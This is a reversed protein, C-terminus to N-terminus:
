LTWHLEGTIPNLRAIKWGYLVLIDDTGALDLLTARAIRELRVPDKPKRPNVLRTSGWGTLLIGGDTWGTDFIENMRGGQHDGTWIVSGDGASLVGVAHGKGLSVGIMNGDPSWTVDSLYTKSEFYRDIGKVHTSLQIDGSQANLLWLWPFDRHGSWKLGQDASVEGTGGVAITMGDPDFAITDMAGQLEMTRMGHAKLEGEEDLPWGVLVEGARVACIRNRNADVDVDSVVPGTWVLEGTQKWLQVKGTPTAHFFPQAWTVLFRGDHTWKFTSAGWGEMPALDLVVELESRRQKVADDAGDLGAKLPWIHLDGGSIFALHEGNPNVRTFGMQVDKDAFMALIKGSNPDVLQASAEIAPCERAPRCSVLLEGTPLQVAYTSEVLRKPPSEPSADAPSEQSSGALLAFCLLANPILM